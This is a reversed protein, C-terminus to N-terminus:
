ISGSRGPRFRSEGHPRRSTAPSGSRPMSPRSRFQDERGPPISQRGAPATTAYKMLLLCFNSGGRPPLDDIGRLEGFSYVFGPSDMPLLQWDSEEQYRNIWRGAILGWVQEPQSSYRLQHLSHPVGRDLCKRPASRGTGSPRELGYGRWRKEFDPRDEIRRLSDFEFGTRRDFYSTSNVGVIDRHIRRTQGWAPQKALESDFARIAVYVM